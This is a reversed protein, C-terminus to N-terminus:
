KLNMAAVTAGLLPATGGLSGNLIKTERLAPLIGAEFARELADWWLKGSRTVSGSLVVAEPDVCNAIGAISDGLAAGSEVLTKVALAEGAEARETIERGSAVEADNDGRLTNYLTVQGTGSAVSEIHGTTGCSCKIGAALPHPVHGVHGAAFHAGFHLKGDIVLAGGIGTGVAVALVSSFECAAGFTYEGLAHAHVDNLIAVPLGFERKVLAALETGAWGKILDTASTITGTNPDVVGASAIGIASPPTSAHEIAHRIAEFIAEVVASAGDQAPTPLEFEHELTPTKSFDSTVTALASAIKTGGIDVAVIHEPM